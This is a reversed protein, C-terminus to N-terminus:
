KLDRLKKWPQNQEFIGDPPRVNHNKKREGLNVGLLYVLKVTFIGKSDYYLAIMDDM